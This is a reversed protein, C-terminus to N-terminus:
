VHIRQVWGGSGMEEGGRCSVGLSQRLGGVGGRKGWMLEGGLWVRGERGKSKGWLVGYWGIWLGQGQGQGREGRGM